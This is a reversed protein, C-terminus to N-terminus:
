NESDLQFSHELEALMRAGLLRPAKGAGRGEAVRAALSRLGRVAHSAGSGSATARDAIGDKRRLHPDLLGRKKASLNAIRQSFDNM